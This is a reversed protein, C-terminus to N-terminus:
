VGAITTAAQTAAATKNFIVLMKVYNGTFDINEKSDSFGQIRLQLSHTTNITSVGLRPNANPASINYSIDANANIAALLTAYTSAADTDVEWIWDEVRQCLILTRRELNSGYSGLGLPVKNGSVMRSGDWYQVVGTVIHSVAGASGATAFGLSGDSVLTMCDGIQVDCNAGGNPTGSYASALFRQEPSPTGSGSRSRYPRFGYRSRNDAM